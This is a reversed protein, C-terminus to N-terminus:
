LMSFCLAWDLTLAHERIELDCNAICLQHVIIDLSYMNWTLDFYLFSLQLIGFHHNQYTNLLTHDFLYPLRAAWCSLYFQKWDLWYDGQYWLKETFMPYFVCLSQQPTKTNVVFFWLIVPDWTEPQNLDVATKDVSAQLQDLLNRSEAKVTIPIIM